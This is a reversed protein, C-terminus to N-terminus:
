GKVVKPTALSLKSRWGQLDKFISSENARHWAMCSLGTCFKDTHLIFTCEVVSHVEVLGTVVAQICETHANVVFPFWQHSLILIFLVRM